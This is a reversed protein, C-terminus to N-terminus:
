SKRVVLKNYNKLARLDGLWAKVFDALRQHTTKNGSVPLRRLFAFAPFRNSRWFGHQNLYAQYDNSQMATISDPNMTRLYVPNNRKSFVIRHTQSYFLHFDNHENEILHPQDTYRTYDGPPFNGFAKLALERRHICTNPFWYMVKQAVKGTVPNWFTQFRDVFLDFSKSKLTQLLYPNFIDDDDLRIIYDGPLQQDQIYATAKQLKEEKHGEFRLLIFNEHLAEGEQLEGIMLAKWATCTQSILSTLCLQRLQRRAPTLHSRPTLPVIFLFSASM